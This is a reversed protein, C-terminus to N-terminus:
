WPVIGKSDSYTGAPGDDPLLALCITEAAGEPISQTGRRANLDTATYGPDASNV